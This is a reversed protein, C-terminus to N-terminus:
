GTGRLLRIGIFLAIYAPIRVFLMYIGNMVFQWDAPYSFDWVFFAFATKFFNWAGLLFGTIPDGYWNTSVSMANSSVSKLILGPGYAEVGGFKREGVYIYGLGLSSGSLIEVDDVYIHTDTSTENYTTRIKFNNLNYNTTAVKDNNLFESWFGGVTATPITITYGRVELLIVKNAGLMASFSGVVGSPLSIYIDFDVNAPNSFTYTNDYNGYGNVHLNDLILISDDGTSNWGNSVETWGGQVFIGGALDMGLESSNSVNVTSLDISFTQVQKPSYLSPTTDVTIGPTLAGVWSLFISNLIIITILLALTEPDSGAM